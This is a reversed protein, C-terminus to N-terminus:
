QIGRALQAMQQGIHDIAQNLKPEYDALVGAASFAAHAQRILGRYERLQALEPSNDQLIVDLTDSATQVAEMEPTVVPENGVPEFGQLTAEVYSEIAEKESGFSDIDGMANEWANEVANRADPNTNIIEMQRESLTVGARRLSEILSLGASDLGVPRDKGALYANVYKQVAEKESDAQISAQRWARRGNEIEDYIARFQSPDKRIEQQKETSITIGYRELESVLEGVDDEMMWTGDLEKERSDINYRAMGIEDSRDIGRQTLIKEWAELNKRAEVIATEDDFWADILDEIGNKAQEILQREAERAPKDRNFEAKLADLRAKYPEILADIQDKRAQLDAILPAKLRGEPPEMFDRMNAILDAPVEMATWYTMRADITNAFNNVAKSVTRKDYDAIADALTSSSSMLFQLYLRVDALGAIDAPAPYNLTKKDTPKPEPVPTPEPTPEPTPNPEPTPEPQANGGALDWLKNAFDDDSYLSQPYLDSLAQKVITVRDGGNVDVKSYGAELFAHWYGMASTAKGEPILRKLEAIFPALDAEARATIAATDVTGAKIANFFMEFQQVFNNGNGIYASLLRMFRPRDITTADIRIPFESYRAGAPKLFENFFAMYTRNPFQAKYTAIVDMVPKLERKADDVTLYDSFDFLDYTDIDSATLADPYGVIGYRYLEPSVNKERVIGVDKADEPMLTYRVGSPVSGPGIPRLRVGYWHLSDYDNQENQDGPTPETPRKTGQHQDGAPPTPQPAPEPEPTPQPLPQPEPEPEPQVEEQLRTLEETLQANIARQKDLKQQVTQLEPGQAAIQQQLQDGQTVLQDQQAIIADLATQKTTIQDRLEAARKQTKAFKPSNREILKSLTLTAQNLSVDVGGQPAVTHTIDKKNLLFRFAVLIDSAALTTGQATPSHFAITVSQGDSLPIRAFIIPVGAVRRVASIEAGGAVAGEQDTDEATTADETGAKIGSGSLQQNLKRTFARMSRILQAKTSSVAEFMATTYRPMYQDRPNALEHGIFAHEIEALSVAETMLTEGDGASLKQMLQDVFADTVSFSAYDGNDRLKIMDNRTFM